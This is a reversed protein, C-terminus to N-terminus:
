AFLPIYNLAGNLTVALAHPWTITCLGGSVPGTIALNALLSQSSLTLTNVATVSGLSVPGVANLAGSVGVTGVLTSPGSVALSAASLAGGVTLGVSTNVAGTLTTPGAV